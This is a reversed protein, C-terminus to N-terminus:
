LLGGGAWACRRRSEGMCVEKQKGMCVEREREHVGGGAAAKKARRDRGSM